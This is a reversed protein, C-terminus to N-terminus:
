WHRVVFESVEPSTSRLANELATDVAEGTGIAKWFAYTMAAADAHALDDAFTVVYPVVRLWDGVEDGHCAAILLVEIGELRASLWAGDAVGDAMDIGAASAHCAMHLYRVPRGTARARRLSRALTARTAGRLAHFALGTAVRVGRLMALDVALAPDDGLCVLLRPVLGLSASLTVPTPAAAAGAITPEVPTPTQNDSHISPVLRSAGSGVPGGQGEGTRPLIGSPMPLGLRARARREAEAFDEARYERLGGAAAQEADPALAAEARLAALMDRVLQRATPALARADEPNITDLEGAELLRVGLLLARQIVQQRLRREALARLRAVEGADEGAAADWAASRREWEDRLAREVWRRPATGTKNSGSRLRWLAELSRECGLICYEIFRDYNEASEGEMRQWLRM